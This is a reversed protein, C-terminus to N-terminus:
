QYKDLFATMDYTSNWWISVDWLMIKKTFKLEELITKWAPLLITISHVIKFFIKQLQLWILRLKITLSQNKVKVMVVKVPQISKKLEDKKEKNMLELEDVLGETDDGEGETPEPTTGQIETSSREGPDSRPPTVDKLVYDKWKGDTLRISDHITDLELMSSLATVDKILTIAQDITVGGTLTRVRNFGAITSIPTWGDSKM